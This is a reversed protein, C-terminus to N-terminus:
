RTRIEIVTVTKGFSYSKHPGLIPSQHRGASDNYLVYGAYEGTSFSTMGPVDVALGGDGQYCHYLYPVHPHLVFNNGSVSTSGSPGYTCQSQPLEHPLTNSRVAEAPGALACMLSAAAATSTLAALRRMM